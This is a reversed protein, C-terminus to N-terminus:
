LIKTFWGFLSFKDKQFKIFNEIKTQEQNLIQIQNQIETKDEENQVNETLRNLQELNSRTQVTESILLGLDKYNSGLFFTTINNRTQVKEMVEIVIAASQDQEQAITRVQERIEGDRSAVWLLNQVFNAVINKHNQVNIQESSQEQNGQNETQAEMSIGNTTKITMGFILCFVFILTLTFTLTFLFFRNNKIKKM